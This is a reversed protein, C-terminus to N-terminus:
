RDGYKRQGLARVETHIEDLKKTLADRERKTWHADEDEAHLYHDKNSAENARLINTVKEEISDMRSSLRQFAAVGSILGGIIAIALSIWQAM